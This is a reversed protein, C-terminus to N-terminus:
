ATGTESVEKSLHHEDSHGNSQSNSVRPVPSEDVISGLRTRLHTKARSLRSMVTGMPISLLEAIDRYSFEEFYYLILPTRYEEPLEDLAQRLLEEDVQTESPEGVPDPPSAMSSFTINRPQRSRKLYANRTISLLWSRAKEPARLQDLHRHASLFTQQTLDEADSESGSLRLAFRYVLRYNEDVLNVIQSQDRDNSM